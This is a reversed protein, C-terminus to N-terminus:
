RLLGLLLGAILCDALKRCDLRYANNRIAKTLSAIKEPREEPALRPRLLTNMLGDAQRRDSNQVLTLHPKKM